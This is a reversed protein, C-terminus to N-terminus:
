GTKNKHLDERQWHLLSLLTPPPKSASFLVGLSLTSAPGPQSAPPNQASRSLPALLVAVLHSTPHCTNSAGQRRPLGRFPVIVCVPNSPHCPHCQTPMQVGVNPNLTLGLRLCRHPEVAQPPRPLHHPSCACDSSLPLWISKQRGPEKYDIRLGVHQTVLHVGRAPLSAPGTGVLMCVIARVERTRILVSAGPGSCM